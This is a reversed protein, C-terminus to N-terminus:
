KLHISLLVQLLQCLDLHFQVWLSPTPHSAKGLASSDRGPHLLSSVLLASLLNVAVMVFPPLKHLGRSVVQLEHLCVPPDIYSRYYDGFTVYLLANEMELGFQSPIEFGACQQATLICDRGVTFTIHGVKSAERQHNPM